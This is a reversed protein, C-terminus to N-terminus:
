AAPLFPDFGSYQAIGYLGALVGAGCLARLVALLAMPSSRALAGVLFACVAAAIQEVAGWRRWNSGNFALSLIPSAAATLITLLIFVALVAANWRGFRSTMFSLSTAPKWAAWLLLIAAAALVLGAKPTVDYYFFLRPAFALPIAFVVGAVFWKMWAVRMYVSVRRFPSLPCVIASKKSGISYRDNKRRFQFNAAIAMPVATAKVAAALMRSGLCYVAVAVSTISGGPPISGRPAVATLEM